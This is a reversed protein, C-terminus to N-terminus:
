KELENKIVAIDRTIIYINDNTEKRLREIEAHRAEATDFHKDSNWTVFGMMLVVLPIFVFWPVRNKISKWM